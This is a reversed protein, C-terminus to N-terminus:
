RRASTSTGTATATTTSCRRARTCATRGRPSARRAGPARRRRPDRRDGASPRHRRVRRAAGAAPARGGAGLRDDRGPRGSTARTACTPRSCRCCTTAAGRGREYLRLPPSACARRGSRPRAPITPATPRAASTARTRATSRGSCCGRREAFVPVFATLDPLHNGGHYPDNLLFVDGPRVDAASSSRAGVAVAWPMAGVHIPVHEAQAVLRGDLMASRPPSIAARTSSRRTRPACCRRAWRRSSPRRAPAPRGLRHDSRRARGSPNAEKAANWRRSPAAPRM